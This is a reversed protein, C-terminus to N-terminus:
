FLVSIDGNPNEKVKEEFQKMADDRFDVDGSDKNWSFERIPIDHYFVVFYNTVITGFYCCVTFCNFFM